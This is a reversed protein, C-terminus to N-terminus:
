TLLSKYYLGRKGVQVGGRKEGSLAGPNAGLLHRKRRPNDKPLTPFDGRVNKPQPPEGEDANVRPLNKESLDRTEVSCGRLEKAKVVAGRVPIQERRYSKGV